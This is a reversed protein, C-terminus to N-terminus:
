VADGHVPVQRSVLRELQVVLGPELAVFELVIFFRGTDWSQRVHCVRADVTSVHRDSELRITHVSGHPLPWAAEVLAGGRSINHLHVAPEAVLTGRLRGMIEFRLGTRRDAVQLMEEDSSTMVGIARSRGADEGIRNFNDLKLAPHPRDPPSVRAPTPATSTKV